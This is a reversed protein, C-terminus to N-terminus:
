LSAYREHLPRKGLRFPPCEGGSNLPSGERKSAGRFHRGGGGRARLPPAKKKKREYDLAGGKEGKLAGFKRRSRRDCRRAENAFEKGQISTDRMRVVARRNEGRVRVGDRKEKKSTVTEEQLLPTRERQLSSESLTSSANEETM